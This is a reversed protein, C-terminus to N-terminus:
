PNDYPSPPPAPCRKVLYGYGHAWRPMFIYRMWGGGAFGCAHHLVGNRHQLREELRHIPRCCVWCTLKDGM